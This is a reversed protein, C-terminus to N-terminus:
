RSRMKVLLVAGLAAIGPVVCFGPSRTAAPLAPQPTAVPLLGTAYTQTQGTIITVPASLDQYGDLKLFVTHIGPSLDPITAPSIGRQIGDVFISAGAPTTAVSLSGVAEPVMAPITEAASVATTTTVMTIRTGAGGLQISGGMYDDTSVAIGPLVAIGLLCVLLLSGTKM